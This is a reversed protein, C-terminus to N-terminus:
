SSCLSLYVQLAHHEMTCPVTSINLLANTGEVGDVTNRSLPIIAGLFKRTVSHMCFHPQVTPERHMYRCVISYANCRIHACNRSVLASFALRPLKGFCCAPDILNNSVIIGSFCAIKCAATESLRERQSVRRDTALRCPLAAAWFLLLLTWNM